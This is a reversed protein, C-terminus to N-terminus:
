PPCAPECCDCSVSDCDVALLALVGGSSSSAKLDCASSPMTGFLNPNGRFDASRLDMIDGLEQPISGQFDNDSLDLQRLNTLSELFRLSGSLGNNKVDLEILGQPLSFTPVPGMLNNHGLKLRILSSPWERPLSGTLDNGGLHLIDLEDLQSLEEGPITGKLGNSPIEIRNILSLFDCGVGAWDCESESSLFSAAGIPVVFDDEAQFMREEMIASPFSRAAVAAMDQPAAVTQSAFNLAGCQDDAAHCKNWEGETGGTSYYLAALIYRQVLEASLPCVGVGLDGPTSEFRDYDRLWAL